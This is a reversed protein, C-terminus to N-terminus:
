SRGGRGRYGDRGFRGRGAYEFKTANQFGIYSVYARDDAEGYRQCREQRM